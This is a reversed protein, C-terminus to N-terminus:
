MFFRCEKVLVSHFYHMTIIDFSFFLNTPMLALLSNLLLLPYTGWDHEHSISHLLCFMLLSCRHLWSIYYVDYSVLKMVMLWSSVVACLGGEPCLCLAAHYYKCM